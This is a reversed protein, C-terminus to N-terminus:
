GDESQSRRNMLVLFIARAQTYTTSFHCRCGFIFCYEHTPVPACRGASVAFFQFFRLVNCAAIAALEDVQMVELQMVIQELGDRNVQHEAVVEHRQFFGFVPPRAMAM